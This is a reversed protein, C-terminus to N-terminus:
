VILLRVSQKTSNKAIRKQITVKLIQALTIIVPIKRSPLRVQPIYKILTVGLKVYSFVMLYELWSIKMGVAVFLLIFMGLWAATLLVRALLSM